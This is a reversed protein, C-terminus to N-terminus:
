ADLSLICDKLVKSGKSEELTNIILDGTLIVNLKSGKCALRDVVVDLSKFFM